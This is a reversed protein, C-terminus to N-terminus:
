NEGDEDGQEEREEMSKLFERLNISRALLDDPHSACELAEEFIPDLVDLADLADQAEAAMGERIVNIAQQAEDEALGAKDVRNMYLLGKTNRKRICNELQEGLEPHGTGIERTNEFHRIRLEWQLHDIFDRIM